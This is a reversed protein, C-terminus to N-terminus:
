NKELNTLDSFLQAIEKAIPALVDYKLDDVEVGEPWESFWEAEIASRLLIDYYIIIPLDFVSEWEQPQHRKLALSFKVLKKQRIDDDLKYEM